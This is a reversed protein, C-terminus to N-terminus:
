KDSSRRKMVESHRYCSALHDNVMGVAQMLSYCITPGVFKFGRQRLDRSLAEAAPTAVPVQEMRQWHNTLPKGEVFRWLYADFSGFNEQVELFAQANRIASEIKLRNRVIGPDALLRQREQDGYRAIAQPDFSDLARRYNERKKLITIWSLGAQAGELLLFEFLVRDDRQPVGWERDHYDRYLPDDGCWPCRTPENLRM